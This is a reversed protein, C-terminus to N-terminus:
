ENILRVKGKLERIYDSFEYGEKEEFKLELKSYLKELIMKEIFSAASVMLKKLDASFVEPKEAIEERKLNCKNGLFDYIVQAGAEKFVQKLTENVASLLLDNLKGTKECVKDDRKTNVSAIPKKVTHQTTMEGVETVTGNQWGFIGLNDSKVQIFTSDTNITIM